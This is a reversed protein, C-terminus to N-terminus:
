VYTEYVGISYPERKVEGVVKKGEENANYTDILVCWDKKTKPLEFVLTESYHNITFYYRKDQDTIEWGLSQSHYSWDPEYCKVGHWTIYKEKEKTQKFWNIQKRVDLAKKVCAMLEKTRVDEGWNVWYPESDQCFANNNGYQTRGREDGMLFMPVGHSLALLVFFNKMKRIRLQDIAENDTEGEIGCNYSYNSNHGDRNGEGNLLNHKQNYSLLDWMTFGDHATVFHISHLSNKKEDQFLIDDGVICKALDGIVGTDGRVVKRITDRYFDSWERFPVPMRGVDYSGKADWGETILKVDSLLPDQAIDSLLGHAMWHGKEDQQLISALDFRFGDVGFHTVWYRLSELVLEKVVLHTTNLVNGTGSCNMYHNANKKYYMEDGLAKFHFTAGGEGGEGTHNYVVDLILEMERQHIAEVLEKFEKIEDVIGYNEELAFFSIPNYGWEDKLQEGTEPHKNEITFPYWKFVPLLEITTFGLDKLYDLKEMLGKFTGRMKEELRTTKSKTFSGIHLEYIVTDCWSIRPRQTLNPTDRCIKNRYHRAKIEVLGRGYPDVLPGILEGNHAKAWWEYGEVAKDDQEKYFFVNGNSQRNRQLTITKLPREDKMSQYIKLLMEDCDRSVIAFTRQNNVEYCGLKPMPLWQNMM